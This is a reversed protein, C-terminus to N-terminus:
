IVMGARFVNKGTVTSSSLDIAISLELKMVERLERCTENEKEMKLNQVYDFATLRRDDTVCATRPSLGVLLKISTTMASLAAMREHQASQSKRIRPLNRGRCLLHLPLRGELVEAKAGIAGASTELLAHIVARECQADCAIHLPTRGMLDVAFKLQLSM